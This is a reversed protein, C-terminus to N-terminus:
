VHARGIKHYGEQFVAWGAASLVDAYTRGTLNLERMSQQALVPFADFQRVTRIHGPSALGLRDGLGISVKRGQHSVPSTFPFCAMLKKFNANSLDCVKVPASLGTWDVGTFEGLIDANSGFVVLIRSEADQAMFLLCGDLLHISEPYVGFRAFSGSARNQLEALALKNWDVQDCFLQWGKM